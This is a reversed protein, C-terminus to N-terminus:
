GWRIGTRRTRQPAALSSALLEFVKRAKRVHWYLTIRLILRASM